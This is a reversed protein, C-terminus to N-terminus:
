AQKAKPFLQQLSDTLMKTALPQLKVGVLELFGSPNGNRFFSVNHEMFAMHVKALIEWDSCHSNVLADTTLRQTQQTYSGDEQLVNFVAEVYRLMHARCEKNVQFDGVKPLFTGPFKLVLDMGETAPLRGINFTKENGEGDTLTVTHPKILPALAPANM